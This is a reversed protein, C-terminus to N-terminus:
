TVRTTIVTRGESADRLAINYLCDISLKCVDLCRKLHKDPKGTEECIARLLRKFLVTKREDNDGIAYVMAMTKNKVTRQAKLNDIEEDHPM